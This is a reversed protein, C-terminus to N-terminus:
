RGRRRNRDGRAAPEEDDEDDDQAGAKMAEASARLGALLVERSEPNIGATFGKAESKELAKMLEAGAAAQAEAFTEMAEVRANLAEVEAKLAEVEPDAQPPRQPASGFSLSAVVLALAACPIMLQTRIM